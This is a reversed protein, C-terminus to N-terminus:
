TMKPESPEPFIIITFNIDRKYSGSSRLDQEPAVVNPGDLEVVEVLGDGGMEAWEGSETRLGM